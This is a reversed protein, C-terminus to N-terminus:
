VILERAALMRLSSCSSGPPSFSCSACFRFCVAYMYFSCCTLLHQLGMLLM